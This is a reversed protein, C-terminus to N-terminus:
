IYIYGVHALESSSQLISMFMLIFKYLIGEWLKPAMVLIDHCWVSSYVTASFGDKGRMNRTNHSNDWPVLKPMDALWSIYFILEEREYNKTGHGPNDHCRVSAYITVNGSIGKEEQLSVCTPFKIVIFGRATFQGVSCCITHLQTIICNGNICVIISRSNGSNWNWFKCLDQYSQELCNCCLVGSSHFCYFGQQALMIKPWTFNPTDWSQYFLNLSRTIHALALLIDDSIIKQSSVGGFASM